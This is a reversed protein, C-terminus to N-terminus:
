ESADPKKAYDKESCKQFAELIGEEFKTPKGLKKRIEINEKLCKIEFWLGRERGKIKCVTM